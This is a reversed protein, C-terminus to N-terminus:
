CCRSKAQQSSPPNARIARLIPYFTADHRDRRVKGTRDRGGDLAAVGRVNRGADVPLNQAVRVSQLQEVGGLAEADMAEARVQDNRSNLVFV